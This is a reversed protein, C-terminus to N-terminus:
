SGSRCQCPSGWCTRCDPQDPYKWSPFPAEPAGGLNTNNSTNSRFVKTSGLAKPAGPAGNISTKPVRSCCKLHCTPVREISLEYRNVQGPGAVEPRTVKVAGDAELRALSKFVSRRNLGSEFALTDVRPFALHEARYHSAIALLLLRDAGKHPSHNLVWVM